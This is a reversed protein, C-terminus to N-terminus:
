KGDFLRPPVSLHSQFPMKPSNLPLQEPLFRKFNGTNKGTVPFKASFPESAVPDEAM